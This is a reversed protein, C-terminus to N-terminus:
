SIPQEVCAPPAGLGSLNGSIAKAAVTPARGSESPECEQCGPKVGSWWAAAAPWKDTAERRSSDGSPTRSAVAAWRALLTAKTAGSSLVRGGPAPAEPKKSPWETGLSVTRHRRWSRSADGISHNGVGLGGCVVRTGRSAPPRDIDSGRSLQPIHQPVNLCAARCALVREPQGPPVELELVLLQSEGPRPGVEGSSAQESGGSRALDAARAAWLGCIIVIDPTSEM